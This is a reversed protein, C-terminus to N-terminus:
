WINHLNRIRWLVICTVLISITDIFLLIIFPYTLNNNFRWNNISTDYIFFGIFTAMMQSFLFIGIIAPLHLRSRIRLDRATEWNLELEPIRKELKRLYKLTQMQRKELQYWEIELLAAIPPFVLAVSSPIDRTLAVGLFGAALTLTIQVIRQRMEFRKLIQECLFSYEMKLGTLKLAEQDM